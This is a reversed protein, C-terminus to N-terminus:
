QGRQQKHSGKVDSMVAVRPFNLTIKTQETTVWESEAGTRARVIADQIQKYVPTPFIAGVLDTVDICINNESKIFIRPRTGEDPDTVLVLIDLRGKGIVMGEQTDTKPRSIMKCGPEFCKFLGREPIYTMESDPHDKCMKKRAAPRPPPTRLSRQQSMLPDYGDQSIPAVTLTNAAHREESEFIVRDLLEEDSEAPRPLPLSRRAARQREEISAMGERLLREAEAKAEAEKRAEEERKLRLRENETEKRKKELEVRTIAQMFKGDHLQRIAQSMFDMTDKANAMTTPRIRDLAYAQEATAKTTLHLLKVSVSDSSRNWQYSMTAEGPFVSNYAKRLDEFVPEFMDKWEESSALPYETRSLIKGFTERQVATLSSALSGTIGKMSKAFDPMSAPDILMKPPEVMKRIEDNIIQSPRMGMMAQRKTTERELQVKTRYVLAQNILEGLIKEFPQQFSQTGSKHYESQLMNYSLVGNVEYDERQSRLSMKVRDTHQEVMFHLTFAARVVTPNSLFDKRFKDMFEDLSIDFMPRKYDAM